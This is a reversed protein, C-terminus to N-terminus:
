LGAAEKIDIVEQMPIAIAESIVHRPADVPIPIKLPELQTMVRSAFGEANALILLDTAIAEIVNPDKVNKQISEMVRVIFAKIDFPAEKTSSASRDFRGTLANIYDIARVDGSRVKQVLANDAEAIGAGRVIANSKQKLVKEFTPDLIWQQWEGTSIGAEALKKTQSRKDHYDLYVSIFSLQRDTLVKRDPIANQLEELVSRPIGRLSLEEKFDESSVVRRWQTLKFGAEDTEKQSPLREHALWFQEVFNLFSQDELTFAPM